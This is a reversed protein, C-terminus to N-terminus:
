VPLRVTSVEGVDVGFGGGDLRGKASRRVSLYVAIDAERPEALQELAARRPAKRAM